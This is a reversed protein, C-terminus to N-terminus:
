ALRSQYIMRVFLIYCTQNRIQKLQLFDGTSGDSTFFIIKIFLPQIMGLTFRPKLALRLLFLIRFAALPNRPPWLLSKLVAAM